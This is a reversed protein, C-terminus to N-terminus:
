PFLDPQSTDIRGFESALTSIWHWGFCSTIVQTTKNNTPIYTDLANGSVSVSSRNCLKKHIAGINLLPEHGGLM